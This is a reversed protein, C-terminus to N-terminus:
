ASRKRRIVINYFAVVFYRLDTRLPREAYAKLYREESAFIEDMTGPLDVYFPPILGPKVQVRLLQLHPPYLGFYHKSLPRVGVLKVDGKFWNVIMPLEDLWLRRLWRGWSTVRFDEKFKGGVALSNREYVYQQIYEAFPHMTRVKYVRVMKGHQGVRPIAIIPGYSPAVDQAPSGTKRAIFRTRGPEDIFQEVVFGCYAFRGLIETLSIARNRGYTVAFYITRVVPLKPLVRSLAFDITYPFWFWISGYRAQFRRKRQDITEAVCSYLAGSPLLTHLALLFENIRRIDNLSASNELLRTTHRVSSFLEAVTTADIVTPEASNSPIQDHSPASTAYVDFTANASKNM